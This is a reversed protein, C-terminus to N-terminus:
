VRNDCSGLITRSGGVNACVVRSGLRLVTSWTTGSCSIDISRQQLEENTMRFTELFIKPRLM